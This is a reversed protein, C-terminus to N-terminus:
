STIKQICGIIYAVSIMTYIIYGYIEISIILGFSVVSLLYWLTGYISALVVIRSSEANLGSGLVSIGTIIAVGILTATLIFIAGELTGVSVNYFISQSEVVFTNSVGDILVDNNVDIELVGSIFGGGLILSFIVIITLILLSAGILM